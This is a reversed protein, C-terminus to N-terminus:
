SSILYYNIYIDLLILSFKDFIQSFRSLFWRIVRNPLSKSIFKHIENLKDFSPNKSPDGCWLYLLTVSIQMPHYALNLHYPDLKQFITFSENLLQDLQYSPCALGKKKVNLKEAINKFQMLLEYWGKDNRMPSKNYKM